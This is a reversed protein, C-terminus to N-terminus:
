RWRRRSGALFEAYGWLAAPSAVAQYLLLFAVFGGWNRRLGLDLEGFVQRLQWRLLLGYVAATLPLVLLTWASVILPFGCAFLVLGPLWVLTYGVDLLPILLDIGAVFRALPRPQRWPPVTRLAEFMGRAWRARQRWFHGFREPVDTFAVATPEYLVRDGQHMLRWTLVIDEGIADPWGGVARVVETRYVSFAGQAVLTAQYLGQMRKVGAIGLFYDWEQVRTLWNHRSNRVLVSGAVAVTDAPASELRGLLRRLAQPHLLTDADVTVVLPTDVLALAANLAHAKGPTQEGHVRLDLGLEEATALARAATADTSGNDAIIVRVPGTYDQAALRELTVAIGAEENRAAILVTVSTVPHSVRLPPQRDLMLSTAMFAVLAGPLWAVLAIVTLALAPGGVESLQRWWPQALVGALVTWLVTAVFAVVFKAGVGLYLRRGRVQSVAASPDGSPLEEGQRARPLRRVGTLGGRRGQPVAPDGAQEPVPRGGPTPRPAPGRDAPQAARPEHEAM